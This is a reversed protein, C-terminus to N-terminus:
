DPGLASLFHLRHHDSAKFLLQRSFMQSSMSLFFFPALRAQELSPLRTASLVETVSPCDEGTLNLVSYPIIERPPLKEKKESDVVVPLQPTM